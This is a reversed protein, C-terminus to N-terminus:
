CGSPTLNDLIVCPHKEQACTYISCTHQCLSIAPHGLNPVKLCVHRKFGWYEWVKWIVTKKGVNAEQTLTEEMEKRVLELAMRLKAQKPLYVSVM